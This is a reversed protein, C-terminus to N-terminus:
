NANKQTSSRIPIGLGAKFGKVSSFALKLRGQSLGVWFYVSIWAGVTFARKLRPGLGRVQLRRLFLTYDRTLWFFSRTGTNGRIPSSFHRVSVRPSFILKANIRGLRVFLDGDAHGFQFIEDFGGTKELLNRRIAMNTVSLVSVEIPHPLNESYPLSGGISFTGWKSLYGVHLFRGEYLVSNVIRFLVRTFPHIDMYKYMKRLLQRQQDIAPGGVVAADPYNKFTQRVEQVWTPSVETDDNLYAVIDCNVLRLGQNFLHPINPTQDEQIFVSFNHIEPLRTLDRDGNNVLLVEFDKDTQKGLSILLRRLDDIRDKTPILITMRLGSNVHADLRRRELAKDESLDLSTHSSRSKIVKLNWCRTSFTSDRTKENIGRRSFLRQRCRSASSAHSM